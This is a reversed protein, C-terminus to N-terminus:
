WKPLQCNSFKHSSTNWVRLSNAETRLPFLLCSKLNERRHTRLHSDSYEDGQHHLCCPGRFRQYVEVLSCPAVVWFVAMKSIPPTQWLVWPRSGVPSRTVYKKTRDQLKRLWDPTLYKRPIHGTGLNYPHCPVSVTSRFCKVNRRQLCLWLASAAGNRHKLFSM